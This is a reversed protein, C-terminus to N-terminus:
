KSHLLVVNQAHRLCEGFTLVPLKYNDQEGRFDGRAQLYRGKSWRKLSENEWPFVKM